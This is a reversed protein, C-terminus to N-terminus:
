CEWCGGVGQFYGGAFGLEGLLFLIGLGGTVGCFWGAPLVGGISYVHEQRIQDM